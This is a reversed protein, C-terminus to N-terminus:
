AGKNLRKKHRKLLAKAARLNVATYDLKSNIAPEVRGTEGGYSYKHQVVDGGNAFVIKYGDYLSELEANIGQKICYDYLELIEKYKM